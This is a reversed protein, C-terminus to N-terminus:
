RLTTHRFTEVTAPPPALEPDPAPYGAALVYLPIVSANDIGCRRAIEEDRFAGTQAPGLGMATATLVFTQGLHGADLLMVRYTRPISYKVMMRETVAALFVVFPAHGIWDQDACLFAVDAATLGASILELSQEHGNYHYTGPEVGAVNLVGVYAELEQKSGGGPSTRRYVGGRGCDIFDVPGFVTSLLAAVTGLPLPETTFERHTRRGYLVQDYPVRLDVPRRPLMVRDADPYTTFIAPPAQVPEAATTEVPQDATTACDTAYHFFPAEPQWPGWRLAVQEDRDAEPTDEAVLLGADLLVDVCGLVTEQTLHDLAEAAKVPEVWEEFASLIEAAAPHLATPSGVAYPHAVFSGDHWYCAICLSRRLRM